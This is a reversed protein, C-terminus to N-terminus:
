RWRPIRLPIKVDGMEACLENLRRRAGQWKLDALKEDLPVDKRLTALQRYLLAEERRQALNEVLTAARGASV